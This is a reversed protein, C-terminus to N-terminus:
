KSISQQYRSPRKLSYTCSKSSQGNETSYNREELTIQDKEVRVVRTRTEKLSKCERTEVETLLGMNGQRKTETKQTYDCDSITQKREPKNADSFILRTGLMLMENDKESKKTNFWGVVGASCFGLPGSKLEYEGEIINLDTEAKSPPDEALAQLSTFTLIILIFNKM